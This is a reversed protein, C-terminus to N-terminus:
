KRDAAQLQGDFVYERGKRTKLEIERGGSRIKCPQGLKSHIVARALAGNEWSMDVEFGGRACLGKVSGTPWAKPM